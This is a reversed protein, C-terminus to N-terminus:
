WVPSPLLPESMFNRELRNFCSTLLSRMQRSASLRSPHGYAPGPTVIVKEANTRLAMNILVRDGGNESSFKSWENSSGHHDLKVIKVTSEMHGGNELFPIILNEALDPNGDGATFFSCRGPVTGNSDFKPWYLM